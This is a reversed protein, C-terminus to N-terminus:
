KGNELTPQSTKASEKRSGKRLNALPNNKPYGAQDLMSNWTNEEFGQRPIQKGVILVPMKTDGTIKKLEEHDADTNKLTYPIGRNDLLTKGRDCGEGCGSFIYLIVPNKQAAVKTEYPEKETEIVNGTVKKQEARAAPPESDSYHIQGKADKWKYVQATSIAPLLLLLIAILTPM